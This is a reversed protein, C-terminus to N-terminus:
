VIQLPTGKAFNIIEMSKISYLLHVTTISKSAKGNSKRYNGQQTQQLTHTTAGM